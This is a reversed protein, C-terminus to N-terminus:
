PTLQERIADIDVLSLVDSIKGQRLKYFVNESFVVRNGTPNIGMFEKVPTCDFHLRSAITHEDTVLLEIHYVLDPIAKREALRSNKYDKLTTEKGNYTLSAHIFDSLKKLEGRNLCAIYHRYFEETTKM